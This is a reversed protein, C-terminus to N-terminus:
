AYGSALAEDRRFLVPTLTRRDVGGAMRCKGRLIVAGKGDSVLNQSSRIGRSDEKISGVYWMAMGFMGKTKRIRQMTGLLFTAGVAGFESATGSRCWLAVGLGWPIDHACRSLRMKSMSRDCQGRQPPVRRTMASM